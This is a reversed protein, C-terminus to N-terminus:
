SHTPRSKVVQVPLPNGAVILGPKANQRALGVM